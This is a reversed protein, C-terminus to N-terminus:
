APVGAASLRPSGDDLRLDSPLLEAKAAAHHARIEALSPRHCAVGARIVPVQLPRAAVVGDASAGGSLVGDAPAGDDLHRVAVHERVARGDGDLVRHAVKLGGVSGKAASRKAVPRLPARPDPSDAVAVLKYVMGATPHGSGTVLKTGVGYSDVPAGALAAIGHEDLDGTVVIATGTAGAADLVARARRAEAALDGSDIRVAGLRPGAAGLAHALGDRTDYTDVLLTTGAGLAAVQAAFAALEDRHALTFAHASTGTTPVGHRFGAELNSTADFGALYAARAAAVAQAEGTRRSGMEILRRGGAATVMRAAASAVASDANLVSLVLTELVVCDAFTGRVTLVPSHAFSLEGERYADVDGTFRWGDLHAQTRQDIVGEALLWALQEPTFRFAAIAEVLRGLGAVVGYRRGPPLSRAFVEFVAAHAATGDALAARLMTLEYRDTLLATSAPYGPPFPSAARPTAPVAVENGSAAGAVGADEPVAPRAPHTLSPM